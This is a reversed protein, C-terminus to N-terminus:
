LGAARRLCDEHCLTSEVPQFCGVLMHLSSVFDTANVAPGEYTVPPEFRLDGVPPAAYPIGLYESVSQEQPAAHGHFTGGKTIITKGVEAEECQSSSLALSRFTIATWLLYGRLGFLM